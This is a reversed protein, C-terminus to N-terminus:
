LLFYIQASFQNPRSQIWYRTLRATPPCARHLSLTIILIEPLRYDCRVLFPAQPCEGSHRKFALTTETSWSKDFPYNALEPSYLFTRSAPTPIPRKEGRNRSLFARKGSCILMFRSLRVLSSKVIKTDTKTGALRSHKQAWRIRRCLSLTTRKQRHCPINFHSQLAILLSHNQSQRASAAHTPPFRHWNERGTRQSRQAKRSLNANKLLPM